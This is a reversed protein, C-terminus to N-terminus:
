PVVLTQPATAVSSGCSNLATVALVYTGPAVAGSISSGALPIAATVSGSVSLLYGTPAGGSTAPDWSVSITRGVRSATFHIPPLPSGTCGQPLTVTVPNSSASTGVGNVARLSLTFTGSPAGAFALTNTLGFPLVASLTGGVDLLLSTPAGGTYTNRWALSLASGDVTALLGAPASPAVPVGVHIPVENSATSSQSGAVARVRVYFSGAPAAFTYTADTSGTPLVALTQGPAVGGELVYGAPAVGGVAPTWKLTVTNGVVLATFLESPPLLIPAGVILSVTALPSSGDLNQARYTFVDTGQFGANPTYAFSGDASLSVTGNTTPSGLTATLASGGPSTDNALVGPAPVSLTTSAVATYSDAAAVPGVAAVLAVSFSAQVGGITVVVTSQGPTSPATGRLAVTDGARVLADSTTFAGGNVSVEGGSVFVSTSGDVGSVTISNSVVQAQPVAVTRSGFAFSDPTEDLLGLAGAGGAGVVRGAVPRSLRAGGNGLTYAGNAGWACVTGNARMAIATNWASTSSVAVVDSLAMVQTPLHRPQDISGDGVGGDQNNGGGWAWATGDSRLALSLGNGASVSVINQLGAIQFPATYVSNLLGDGIRGSRNDGWAWVTGDQRAALVYGDGASLTAVSDVGLVSAPTLQYPSTVNGVGLTGLANGSNAGWATVTGSANIAWSTLHGAAIHSVGTVGPVRRPVGNDTRTGDGLQANSNSGWAWVTGDSGLALSHYFGAAVAVIGSLAPVQIGNPRDTLTGDGLQGQTNRGWAWVTGDRRLALGHWYGSSVSVVESLGPVPVAVASEVGFETQGWRWVTGDGGLAVAQQSGGAIRGAPMSVRAGVIPAYCAADIPLPRPTVCAEDSYTSNITLTADSARVRYCLSGLFLPYPGDAGTSADAAVSSLMSFASNGQSKREIRYFSENTANDQWNLLVTGDGAVTATLNSPANIQPQVYNGSTVSVDPSGSSVQVVQNPPPNWAPLQKYEITYTGFMVGLATAGSNRWLAEGSLRWSAGAARAGATVVNATISGTLPPSATAEFNAVLDLDGHVAFAYASSGSVYNGNSTWNVFRYGTYPYAVVIVNTGEAYTGGASVEGAMVSSTSTTISFQSSGATAFSWTNSYRQGPNVVQATWQTAQTLVTCVRLVSPAGSLDTRGASIAGTWGNAGLLVYAGSTFGSGTFSVWQATPVGLCGPTNAVTVASIVPGSANAPVFVATVSRNRDMSLSLASATGTADGTWGLFVHGASPVANLAVVSGSPYNPGAPVATISGYLANTTLRYSNPASPANVRFTRRSSEQGDQNLVAVSWDDTSTGTVITLRLQTPSVFSLGGTAASKEAEGTAWIVKVRSEPTFGSGMLTLTSPAGSGVLSTPTVSTLTPPAATVPLAPISELDLAILPFLISPGAKGIHIEGHDHEPIIRQKAARTRGQASYLLASELPVIGDSSSTLGTQRLTEAGACLKLEDVANTANCPTRSGAYAYIKHDVNVATASNLAELNLNRENPFGSITGISSFYWLGNRLDGEPSPADFNVWRLDSRNNEDYRVLGFAWELPRRLRRIADASRSGTQKLANDLAPGNAAPSGHHPTALTILRAVKEHGLRLNSQLKEQMFSRAILGGTSHAVIAIQTSAFNADSATFQDLVDRLEGALQSVDANPRNAYWTVRYPKFRAFFTPKNRRLYVLLNDFARTDPDVPGAEPSFGHIFLVPM